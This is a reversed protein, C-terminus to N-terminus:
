WGNSIEFVLQGSAGAGIHAAIFRKSALDGSATFTDGNTLPRSHNPVYVGPFEGRVNVSSVDGGYIKSLLLKSNTPNSYAAGNAGATTGNIGNSNARYTQSTGSQSYARAVYHATTAAVGSTLLGFQTSGSTSTGGVIGIAYNDNADYNGVDGFMLGGM